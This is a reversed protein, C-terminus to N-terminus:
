RPCTAQSYSEDEVLGENCKEAGNPDLTLSWIELSSKVNGVIRVHRSGETAMALISTLYANWRHGTLHFSQMPGAPLGSSHGTKHRCAAEKRDVNRVM